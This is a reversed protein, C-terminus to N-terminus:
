YYLILNFTAKNGLVILLPSAGTILRDAGIEVRKTAYKWGQERVFYVVGSRERHRDYKAELSESAHQMSYTL